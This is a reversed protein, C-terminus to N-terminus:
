YSWRRAHSIAKAQAIAFRVARAEEKAEKALKAQEISADCKAMAAAIQQELSYSSPIIEPIHNKQIM